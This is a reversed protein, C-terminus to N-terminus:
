LGCIFYRRLLDLQESRPCPCFSSVVRHTRHPFHADVEAQELIGFSVVYIVLHVVYVLILAIRRALGSDLQTFPKFLKGYDEPKIGRGEDWVALRVLEDATNAEVELGISKGPPSEGDEGPMPQIIGLVRSGAIVDDLLALYRPEFVNLPLGSRPLLITGRLPFVPLQAPLDSPRRYRDTTAM